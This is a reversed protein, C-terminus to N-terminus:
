VEVGQEELGTRRTPAGRALARVRFGESLLANAVHWGLFGTGGTLFAVPM